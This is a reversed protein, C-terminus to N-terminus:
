VNSIAKKFTEVNMIDVKYNMHKYSENNVTYEGFKKIREKRFTDIALLLMFLNEKDVSKLLSIMRDNEAKDILGMFNLLNIEAMVIFPKFTGRKTGKDYLFWLYGLSSDNEKAIKHHEACINLLLNDTLKNSSSFLNTSIKRGM